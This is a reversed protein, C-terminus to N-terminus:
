GIEKQFNMYFKQYFEMIQDDLYSVINEASDPDFLKHWNGYDFSDSYQDLKIKYDRYYFKQIEDYVVGQAVDNLRELRMSYIAFLIETDWRMLTYEDISMAKCDIGVSELAKICNIYQCLQRCIKMKYFLEVIHENTKIEKFSPDEDKADKELEDRIVTAIKEVEKPDYRSSLFLYEKLDGTSHELEDLIQGVMTVSASIEQEIYVTESNVEQYVEEVAGDLIEPQFFTQVRAGYAALSGASIVSWLFIISFVSGNACILIKHMRKSKILEGYFCLVIEGAGCFLFLLKLALGPTATSLIGLCGMLIVPVSSQINKNATQM